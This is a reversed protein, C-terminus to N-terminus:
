ASPWRAVVVTGQGPASEIALSAGVSRTREAMIGLGLRGAAVDAPDFGVGDDDIRLEVHEDAYTLALGAHTAHAHKTSNNLAEQAVRYLGIQVDSPVERSDGNVDLKIELRSRSATADALQRLLQSLPTEILAAPRLELLLTRMEALAGRTLLRLEEIRRRGEKPNRDWVKPAVEAILSASFLTQTVADHLERALRQREEAAAASQAQEYLRANQIALGARQGLALLLRREHDSFLRKQVFSVGFAGFVQGGGAIPASLSSRVGERQYMRRLGEPLRSSVTDIEVVEQPAFAERVRRADDGHLTTALMDRSMGRASPALIELHETPQDPDWLVVAGMNAGLLDTGVDVLAHLVDDLVLSGYLVEDARFLAELEHLRRDSQEHLDASEIALMVQQAFADALLVEQRSFSRPEAFFLSISGVAEDHMVLPTAVVAGFRDALRRTRPEPGTPDLDPDMRPGFRMVRTFGDDDALEIQSTSTIADDLAARLDTCVIPRRQQVALGTVPTGLRLHGATQDVALGRAARVALLEGGPPERTYVAAADSGLLRTAQALVLDLIESLGRRANVSWLLDRLGASLRNQRDIAEVRAANELRLRSNELAVSVMAAVAGRLVAQDAGSAGPARWLLLLRSRGDDLPVLLRTGYESRTPSSLEDPGAGLWADPTDSESLFLALADTCLLGNATRLVNGLAQDLASATPVQATIAM